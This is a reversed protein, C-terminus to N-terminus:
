SLGEEGVGRDLQRDLEHKPDHQRDLRAAASTSEYRRLDAPYEAVYTRIIARADPLTSVHNIQERLRHSHPFGSAYWILHKRTLRAALETDGYFAEHYELHRVVVEGWEALTPPRTRLGLIEEFIWPNGLAGRSIMVGRCGTERVMDQASAADMVDGNGVTIIKPNCGLAAKIGRAIGPYSVPVGYSDERTRGHITIQDAGGQAILVATEEINITDPSFGIRLKISLPRRTAARAADVTRRIRDPDKLFASGSGSGVIKRVPCGMNIDITDFGHQDLLQVSQGVLEPQPGTVQVGLIKEDPHRGLMERTRRNGHLLAISSLMEVYTLGAGLETCIRRFPVDTVGALPALYVANPLLLSGLQVSQALM